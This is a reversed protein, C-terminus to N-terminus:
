INTTPFKTTFLTSLIGSVKNYLEPFQTDALFPNVSGPASIDEPYAILNLTGDALYPAIKLWDESRLYIDVGPGTLHVVPLQGLQYSSASGTGLILMVLIRALLPVDEVTVNMLQQGGIIRLREDM